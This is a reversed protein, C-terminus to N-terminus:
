ETGGQGKIMEIYKDFMSKVYVDGSYALTDKLIYSNRLDVGMIIDSQTGFNLISTVIYIPMVKNFEFYIDRAISARPYYKSRSYEIDQETLLIDLLLGMKNGKEEEEAMKNRIEEIVGPAYFKWDCNYKEKATTGELSKFQFNYNNNLDKCNQAYANLKELIDRIDKLNDEILYIVINM